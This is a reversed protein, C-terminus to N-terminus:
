LRVLSVVALMTGQAVHWPHLDVPRTTADLALSGTPNTIFQDLDFTRLTAWPLSSATRNLINLIHVGRAGCDVCSDIGCLLRLQNTDVGTGGKPPLGDM